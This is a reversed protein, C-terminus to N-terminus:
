YRENYTKELEYRNTDLIFALLDLCKDYFETFLINDMKEFSISSVQYDISGDPKVIEELPLFIWKMIYILSYTDNNFRIRISQIAFLEITLQINFVEQVDAWIDCMHAFFENNINKNIIYFLKCHFGLNRSKKVTAEYEGSIKFLKEKDEDFKPVAVKNYGMEKAVDIDLNVFVMSNKKKM